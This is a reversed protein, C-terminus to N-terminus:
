NQTWNMSFRECSMRKILTMDILGNNNKNSNRKLKQLIRELGLERPLRRFGYFDLFSFSSTRLYTRPNYTELLILKM